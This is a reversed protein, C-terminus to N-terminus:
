TAASPMNRKRMTVSLAGLLIAVYGGYAFVETLSPNGNYGFLAKMLSGVISNEDLIFNLDWVNEIVAPIIGAENLEHVGHAVLGAAFFLLLINTVQFFARINLRSAGAFLVWGAALAALLGLGAGPLALGSDAALGAAVLFLALELGERVVAIFALTFLAGQGGGFVAQQVNTEINERLKGAQRQMWFIMWTLIGAALLMAAGEFLEEARGEFRAGLMTLAAAAVLSVLVAAGVGRWVAPALDLRHMRRLAGLTIGIILAAELGERFSLFFSAVM